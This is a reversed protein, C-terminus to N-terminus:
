MLIALDIRSNDSAIVSEKHLSGSSIHGYVYYMKSPPEIKYWPKIKPPEDLIKMITEACYVRDRQAHDPQTLIETDVLTKIIRQAATFAVSLRESLKKATWFPNEALLGIVEFLIKPKKGAIQERWKQLLQNIREARSLVDESIRAIGNLIYELWPTWKSDM